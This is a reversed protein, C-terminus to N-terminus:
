YNDRATLLMKRTQITKASDSTLWCNIIYETANSIKNDEM